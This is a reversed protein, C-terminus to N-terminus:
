AECVPSAECVLTRSIEAEKEHRSELAQRVGAEEADGAQAEESAGSKLCHHLRIECDSDFM